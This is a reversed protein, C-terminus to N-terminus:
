VLCVDYIQSRRSAGEREATDTSLATIPIVVTTMTIGWTSSVFEVDESECLEGGGGKLSTHSRDDLTRL